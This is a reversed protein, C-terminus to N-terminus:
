LDKVGKKARQIDDAKKEESIPKFFFIIRGKGLIENYDMVISVTSGVWSYDELKSYLKYGLGYQDIFTAKLRTFNSFESFSIKVTYFRDKYFGYRIQEIDTDGLKMKDDKRSYYKLDDVDEVLGMDRLESINTGWKIGRFGDPENQFAFAPTTICFTIILLFGLIGLKGQFFLM